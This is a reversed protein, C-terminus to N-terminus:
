ETVKAIAIDTKIVVPLSAAGWFGGRAEMVVINVAVWDNVVVFEWIEVLHGRVGM